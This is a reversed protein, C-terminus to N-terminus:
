SHVATVKLKACNRVIINDEKNADSNDSNIGKM